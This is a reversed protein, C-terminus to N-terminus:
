FVQSVCPSLRKAVTKESDNQHISSNDTQPKRIDKLIIQIFNGLLKINLTGLPYTYDTCFKIPQFRLPSILCRLLELCGLRIADSDFNNTLESSCHLLCAMLQLIEDILQNMNIQLYKDETPHPGHLPSNFISYFNAVIMSLCKSWAQNECETSVGVKEKRCSSETPATKSLAPSLAYHSVCKILNKFDFLM